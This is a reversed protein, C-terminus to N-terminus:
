SERRRIKVIIGEDEIFAEMKFNEPNDLLDNLVTRRGHKRKAMRKIGSVGIKAIIRSITQKIVM